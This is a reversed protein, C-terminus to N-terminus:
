IRFICNRILIDVRSDGPSPHQFTYKEIISSFYKESLHTCTLPVDIILPQSLQSSTGVITQDSNNKVFRLEDKCCGGDKEMGCNECKVSESNVVGWNILKDMCYHLHVNAGITSTLYFIALIFAFVKKM